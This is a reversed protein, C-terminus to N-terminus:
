KVVKKRRLYEELSIKFKGQCDPCLNKAFAYLIKLLDAESMSAGSVLKSTLRECAELSQRHEKYIEMLTRTSYPNKPDLNNTAKTLLTKLGLLNSKIEEVIDIVEKKATEYVDSVSEGTEVMEAVKASYHRQFHREFAKWSIEENKSTATREMEQWSVKGEAKFYIDEYEKRNSSKCVKCRSEYYVM